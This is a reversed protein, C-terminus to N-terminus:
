CDPQPQAVPSPEYWSLRRAVLTNRRSFQKLLAINAQGALGGFDLIRLVPVTLIDVEIQQPGASIRRVIVVFARCETVRADPLNLLQSARGRGRSVPM